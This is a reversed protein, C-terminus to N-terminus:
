GGSVLHYAEVEDGDSVSREAYGGREVLGGNVKVVVLPFSWRKRALIEAVTLREEPYTEPNSNLTIKVAHSYGLEGEPYLRSRCPAVSRLNM